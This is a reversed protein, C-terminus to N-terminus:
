KKDPPRVSPLPERGVSTEICFEDAEMNTRAPTLSSLSQHRIVRTNNQSIVDSNFAKLVNAVSIKVDSQCNQHHKSANEIIKVYQIKM